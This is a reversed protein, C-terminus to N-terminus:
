QSRVLCSWVHLDFCTGEDHLPDFEATTLIIPPLGTFDKQLDPNLYADSEFAAREDATAGLYMSSYSHISALTLVGYGAAYRRKSPQSAEKFSNIAPYIPVLLVPQILREGARNGDRVRLALELTLQGGASDGAIVIQPRSANLGFEIARSTVSRYIALCDLPAAPFRHEPSRRYTIALVRWGTAAAFMRCTPTHSALSGLAYGGGHIYFLLPSPAQVGDPSVLQQPTYLRAVLPSNDDGSFTFDTEVIPPLDSPKDLMAATDYARRALWLPAYPQLFEVVWLQQNLDARVDPLLAAKAPPLLSDNM